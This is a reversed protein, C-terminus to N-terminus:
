KVIAFLGGVADVVTKGGNFITGAANDAFKGADWHGNVANSQIAANARSRTDNVDQRLKNKYDNYGDGGTVTALESSKITTFQM